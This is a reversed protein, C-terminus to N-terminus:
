VIKFCLWHNTLVPEYGQPISRTIGPTSYGIFFHKIVKAASRFITRGGKKVSYIHLFILLEALNLQFIINPIQVPWTKIVYFKNVITRYAYISTSIFSSRASRAVEPRSDLHGPVSFVTNSM